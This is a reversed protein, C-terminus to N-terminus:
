IFNEMALIIAEQQSTAANAIEIEYRGSIRRMVGSNTIQVPARQGVNHIHRPIDGLAKALVVTIAARNFSSYLDTTTTLTFLTTVKHV